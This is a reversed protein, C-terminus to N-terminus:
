VWDPPPLGLDLKAGLHRGFAAILRNEWGGRKYKFAYKRIRRRDTPTLMLVGTAQNTREQLGVMLGQWGGDKKTTPEQRFLAAMEAANLVVEM